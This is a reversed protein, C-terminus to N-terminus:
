IIQYWPEDLQLSETSRIKLQWLFNFLPEDIVILIGYTSLDSLDAGTKRIWLSGTSHQFFAICRM